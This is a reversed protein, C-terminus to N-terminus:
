YFVNIKEPDLLPEIHYLKRKDPRRQRAKM